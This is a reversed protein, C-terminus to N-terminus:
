QPEQYVNKMSCGWPAACFNAKNKWKAHIKCLGEDNVLKKKKEEPQNQGNQGSQGSQGQGKNPKNQGKNKNKQGGQGRNRQVAAVETQPAAGAATAVAAVSRSPIPDSAQNSDWVQDAKTFIAKYTDKNFSMEAIHNRVVIPLKERFMGWIIDGCCCGDLKKAKKCLDNILAKGLQSPKGSLVRNKARTYADEPKRGFLEILEKKVKHYIDDGAATKGLSLLGKVEEQIEPPLFRQVAIRKVWQSKIEIVELQGELQGFWFEIDEKMFPCQVAKLDGLASKGDTGNEQDFDAMNIEETSEELLLAAEEESIEVASTDAFFDPDIDCLDKIAQDFEQRAQAAEQLQKTRAARQQARSLREAELKKRKEERAEAETAPKNKLGSFWM